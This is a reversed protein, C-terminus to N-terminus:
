LMHSACPHHTVWRYPDGSLPVAFFRTWSMKLSVLQGSKLGCGDICASQGVAPVQRLVAQPPPSSPFFSHNYCASEKLIFLAPFLLFHAPPPPLCCSPQLHQSCPYFPCLAGELVNRKRIMVITSVACILVSIHEMARKCWGEWSKAKFLRVRCDQFDALVLLHTKSDFIEWWLLM